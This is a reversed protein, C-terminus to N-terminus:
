EKSILSNIYAVWKDAIKKEELTERIKVANRRIKAAQEKNEIAYAMMESLKAVNGVPVLYGNKGHEVLMRSGYVPCDTSICQVGVSMAEILANPMGEAVSSLVFLEAGRELESINTKGSIIRLSESVGLAKAQKLLNEKLPGSGYIILQYEPHKAHFLSFAEVLTKHDKQPMLRGATVVEMRLNDFQPEPLKDIIPNPIIVGKEEARKGYTKSAELTQFVYGDAVRYQLQKLVRSNIPRFGNYFRESLLIKVGSEWAAIQEILSGGFYILLDIQYDSYLKKIQKYYRYPHKKKIPFDYSIVKVYENLKSDTIQQICEGEKVPIAYYVNFGNQCLKKALWNRVKEGGGYIIRNAFFLINSM